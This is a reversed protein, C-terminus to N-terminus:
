QGPADSLERLLWLKAFRWDRKVTDASVQLMEAVQDIAFGGFFRLEVVRVKRPHVSQLKELAEDLAEFDVRTDVSVEAADELPMRHLRGGRKESGRARASDVLLRRMMRAALAFFHARGELQIRDVDVLRLYVENVLATAQLTHGGPEDRMYRGALRRLEDYVLPMLRECAQRDGRGWALLLDTPNAASPAMLPNYGYPHVQRGGCKRM